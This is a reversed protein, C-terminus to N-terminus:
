TGLKFGAVSGRLENVLGALNGIAQAAEGTGHTTRATIDSIARMTGTLESAASAQRGAAGSINRILGALDQSAREIEDLATGADQALKAGNVVGATSNEMSIVAENTDTQITKVLAEIQRTADGAREALRQVEDAVVAFGRGAEGAMAAQISANLALINTQDAIDTILEVIDGIEQSSEGLRKIRKSTEQIQSRIADMGQITRRVAEGGSHATDVSQTASKALDLAEVSVQAISDAMSNIAASANEIQRAQVESATALGTTVSRTQEASSSVQASTTHIRTVLGRLAEVTYNISDAIAGTFDETVTVNVSLDGDALNGMEDLLRMIAQQNRNNATEAEAQRGKADRVFRMGLLVLSALAVLAFFNATGTDMSRSAAAASFSTALKNVAALLPTSLKSVESAAQRVEVLQESKEAILQVNDYVSSFLMAIERLKAQANADNVRAVEDSGKLMGELVAGFSEADASISELATAADGGALVNNINNVMRQVLMMQRGAVYIQAPPAGQKVLLATVQDTQGLLKPMYENITRVNDRLGLILEKNDLLSKVQSSTKGWGKDLAQAEGAAADEAEPLGSEPNGAMLFGLTQKFRAADRALDAFAEAEGAGAALSLKAIQQTLLRQEGVLAAREQDHGDQVGVYMFTGAMFVTSAVLMGVLTILGRDAGFKKLIGSAKM